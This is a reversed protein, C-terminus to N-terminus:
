KDFPITGTYYGPYSGYDRQRRPDLNNLVSGVLRANVQHLQHRAQDVASRSSRQADAVLLVGDAVRTIVLADSVALIPAADILVFDVEDRLQSLTKSMATSTLLEAPNGPVPGSGLLRLNPMGRPQSLVDHVSHEGALVNTLGYGNNSKFFNQLRPRRLDASVVIVQKGARALAVGLNAATTTKGENEEASTILITKVQQQSAAFLIGTRLTRYAEAAPSDPAAISALFAEETHKWSEIRPVVALVPATSHLELDQRGHLRDDLREALLAAGAALALGVLLALLVNRRYPVISPSTPLYAPQVIQGVRLNEPPPTVLQQLTALRSALSNASAELVAERSPDTTTALEENVNALDEEIEDIQNQVSESQDLIADILQGRRFDLYGKAFADARRQATKGDPHVYTFVLIETNPTISVSLGSLLEGASVSNQLEEAALEAVAPSSALSRETEVNIFTPSTQQLSDPSQVLVQATSHFLPQQKSSYFIAAGVTALAILIIMWKRRRLIVLYDRLNLGQTM